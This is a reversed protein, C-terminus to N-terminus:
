GAYGDEMLREIIEDAVAKTSRGGGSIHINCLKEYITSRKSYLKLFDDYPNQDSLFAPVGKKIIREYLLEAIEEIYIFIFNDKLIELARDNDCIGGGAAAVLVGRDAKRSVLESAKLEYTMFMNRGFRKYIERSSLREGTAAFYLEEAKDDIDIFPRTFHSAILRATSSKGCHKMGTLLVAKKLIVM